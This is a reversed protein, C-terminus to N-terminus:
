ITQTKKVKILVGVAVILIVIISFIILIGNNSENNERKVIDYAYYSTYDLEASTIKNNNLLYTITMGSSNGYSRYYYVIKNEEKVNDMYRYRYNTNDKTDKYLIPWEDKYIIAVESNANVIAYKRGSEDENIFKLKNYYVHYENDKLFVGDSDKEETYSEPNLLMNKTLNISKENSEEYDKLDNIIKISEKPLKSYDYYIDQYLKIIVNSIEETQSLLDKNSCGCVSFVLISIFILKLYKKM